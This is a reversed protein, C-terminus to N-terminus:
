RSSPQWTAADFLAHGKFAYAAGLTKHLHARRDLIEVEARTFWRAETTEVGDPTAEGRLPRASFVTTVFELQDGNEYVVSFSPGGFVGVIHTLEVHMRAEEWVERVAATAPSEGPDIMGGPSTWQGSQADRVLLVRGSTDFAYVAVTPVLLLDNGVKARLSKMHDSMPM